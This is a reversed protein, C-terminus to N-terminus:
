IIQFLLRIVDGRFQKKVMYCVKQEKALSILEDIYKRSKRRCDLEKMHIYKIDHEPVWKEMNEKNFQPVHKSDPYSRVDVLVEIDYSELISIFEKKM